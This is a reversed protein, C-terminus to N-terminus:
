AKEPCMEGLFIAEKEKFNNGENSEQVAKEPDVIVGFGVSSKSKDPTVAAAGTLKVKLTAAHGAKVEAPPGNFMAKYAPATGGKISWVLIWPKPWPAGPLVASAAGANRVTVVVEFTATHLGTCPSTTKSWLIEIKDVVLDPRVGLIPGGPVARVPGQPSSAGPPANSASGTLPLALATVLLAALRCWATM